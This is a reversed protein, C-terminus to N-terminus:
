ASAFLRSEVNRCRQSEERERKEAARFIITHGCQQPATPPKAVRRVRVAEGALRGLLVTTHLHQAAIHNQTLLHPHCGPASFSPSWLHGKRGLDEFGRGLRWTAWRHPSGHCTVGQGFARQSKFWQHKFKLPIKNLRLRSQKKIYKKLNMANEEEHAFFSFLITAADSLCSFCGLM